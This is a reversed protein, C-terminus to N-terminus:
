IDVYGWLQMTVDRNGDTTGVVADRNSDMSDGEVDQPVSGLQCIDGSTRVMVGQLFSCLWSLKVWDLIYIEM